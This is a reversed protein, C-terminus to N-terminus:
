SSPKTENEGCCGLAKRFERLDSKNIEQSAELTRYLVAPDRSVQETLKAAAAFTRLVKRDVIPGVVPRAIRALIGLLRNDIRLYGRVDNMVLSNGTQDTRHEYVMVLVIRGNITPFFRKVFTGRALYIRKGPEAYALEFTGTAGHADDGLFVGNREQVIRYKVIGLIRGATAAFDPHEILFDFVPQPSKVAIGLIDRFFIARETVERLRQQSAVDLREWPIDLSQRSLDATAWAALLAVALVTTGSVGCWKTVQERGRQEPRNLLQSLRSLMNDEAHCSITRPFVDHPLLRFPAGAGSALSIFHHTARFTSPAPADPFGTPPDGGAFSAPAFPRNRTGLAIPGTEEQGAFLTTLGTTDLRM